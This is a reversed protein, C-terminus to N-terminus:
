AGAGRVSQPLPYLSLFRARLVLVVLVVAGFQHLIALYWPSSHMVTIIGLVMQGLLMVAVWDFARKTAVLASRRAMWWVAVGFIFLLYGVIRHFFQVTGDNEFLNRWVPELVWMDPPTFGGAMLPWDIFNRGADIGAVLAGILIQLFTLHLVGTAMGKLRKDGSRRAQMLAAEDRGLAMVYWAILALILFALGLHIALRYSAVDLMGAELGSSVMWWGIAGQLGGLAGLLLLRGTWGTPVNRTALLGVFGLAWVLGIVRGLQRHGWEWWYIVKFEALSMGQNQLQYEPIARYAEFEADWAEASLPPIAGSLPAWETISLGSDTLRTLGGVAIMVVVLAFLVMLWARVLARGRGRGGSVGGPTAAPKQTESVEEFISRSM